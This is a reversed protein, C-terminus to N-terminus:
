SSPSALPAVRMLEVAQGVVGLYGGRDGLKRLVTGDACVLHPHCDYHAGSLYAIWQGDPSWIPQSFAEPLGGGFAVPV